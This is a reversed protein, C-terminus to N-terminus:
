SEAPLTDRVGNGYTIHATVGGTDWVHLEGPPPARRDGRHVYGQISAKSPLVRSSQEYVNEREDAWGHGGRTESPGKGPGKHIRGAPYSPSTSPHTRAHQQGKRQQLRTTPTWSAHGGGPPHLLFENPKQEQEFGSAALALGWEEPIRQVHQAPQHREPRHTRGVPTAPTHQTATRRQTTCPTKKPRPQSARPRRPTHGLACDNAHRGDTPGGTPPPTGAATTDDGGKRM